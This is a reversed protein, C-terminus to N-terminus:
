GSSRSARVGLVAGTVLLAAAIILLWLLGKAVLGVGGILLALVILVIVIV